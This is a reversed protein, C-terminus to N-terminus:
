LGRAESERERTRWASVCRTYLGISSFDTVLDGALREAGAFFDAPLAAAAGRLTAALFGAWGAAFVAFFGVVFGAALLAALGTLFGATLALALGVALGVALGADGAGALFVAVLATAGAGTVLDGGTLAALGAALAAVLDAALDALPWGTKFWGGGRAGLRAARLLTCIEM